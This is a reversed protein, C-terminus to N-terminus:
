RETREHSLRARPESASRSHEPDLELATIADPEAAAVDKKGLYAQARTLYLVAKHKADMKFALAATTAAIADDYRKAHMALSAKHVFAHLGPVFRPAPAAGSRSEGFTPVAGSVLAILLVVTASVNKRDNM